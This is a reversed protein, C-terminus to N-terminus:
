CRDELWYKRMHSHAISSCAACPSAARAWAQRNRSIRSPAPERGTRTNLFGRLVTATDLAGGFSFVVEKATQHRADAGKASNPENQIKGTSACAGAGFEGGNIGHGAFMATWGPLMAIVVSKETARDPAPDLSGRTVNATLRM